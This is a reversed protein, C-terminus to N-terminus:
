PAAENWKPRESMVDIPQLTFRESAYCSYVQASSDTVKLDVAFTGQDAYNHVVNYGLAPGPDSFTDIDNPTGDGFIWEMEKIYYGAAVSTPEALPNGSVDNFPDLTVDMFQLIDTDPSYSFNAVPYSHDPTAIPSNPDSSNYPFKVGPTVASANDESDYVTVNWSYTFNGYDIFGPCFGNIDNGTLTNIFDFQKGTSCVALDSREVDVRYASQSTGAADDEVDTFVWSIREAWPDQRCPDISTANANTVSPNFTGVSVCYDAGNCFSIWGTVDGGWAWGNFNGGSLIVKYNGSNVPITLNDIGGCAVDLFENNDTDCDDALIIGDGGCSVDLRGNNDTDCNNINGKLNIWGDWDGTEWPNKLAGSCDASFVSCARAWGIFDGAGDLSAQCAGSPCGSIDGFDPDGSVGYGFTIWGINESWAYGSLIGGSDLNVGYSKVAGNTQCGPPAPTSGVPVGESNGEYIGDKDVDCNKSNFSIWGATSSWAFGMVNSNQAECGPKSPDTTINPGDTVASSLVDTEDWVTLDWYLTKGYAAAGFDADYTTSSSLVIGTNLINNTKGADDYVRIRYSKQAFQPTTNSQYTWSLDYRNDSTCNNIPGAVSLGSVTPPVCQFVTGQQGNDGGNIGTGGNVNFSGGYTNSNSCNVIRGGGGGGNGNINGGNGGNSTILGSALGTLNNSILFISGGAGGGRPGVASLGSADIIGSNTLSNTIMIKIMGGGTGSAPAGAGAFASGGDGGIGGYGGGRNNQFSGTQGGSGLDNPNTLSGYTNGGTNGSGPGEDASYGKGIADIKGGAIITLNNLNLDIYNVKANTNAIHSLTGAITLNRLNPFNTTTPSFTNVTFNGNLTMDTFGLSIANLNGTNTGIGNINIVDAGNVTFLSNNDLVGVSTLNTVGNATFTGNNTIGWFSWAGTNLATINVGPNIKFHGGNTITLYDINMNAGVPTMEGAVGNNILSLYGNPNAGDDKDKSYITGAGGYVASGSPAGGYAIASGLYSKANYRYSIRGGGGGGNNNTNGGNGGSAIMSGTAAGGFNNTDVYITGGSGGARTGTANSGSVNITGNLMLTNGITLKVLGGGTGGGAPAGAGAWASGGDGGIGGFGGGRNNQFSGSKGGSGLDNPDTISGYANGGTNGSGAGQDAAYGKGAADIKGGANVTLNDLTLDIYNVPTNNNALHGLTGNVTMNVLSAFSTTTPSFTNVILTGDITLNPVNNAILNGNNTVTATNNITLNNINRVDFYSNNNLVGTVTLSAVGLASFNGNNTISSFSWVGTNYADLNVGSNISLHAGNAVTLIDILMSNELPTIEGSFGNNDLTLYGNPNLADSKNKSYVTGAGGYTAAGTRAGGFAVATGTYTKSNFYYAIRGGGGGGNDNSAGASGGNAIMSGTAAGALNNVDVYISGGSGGARTGTSNVASANISGDLTLINSITLKVSGGGAGGTAPAGCCGGTGAGGKGGYGAGRRGAFAGSEGGSGMENPNTISGYTNGGLNGSGAGQDAAYGRGVANLVGTAAINGSTAIIEVKGYNTGDYAKVYVTRGAPISFNNINCHTGAIDIIGATANLDWADGDTPTWNAGGHDIGACPAVPVASAEDSQPGEGIINSASVKYYYTTGNVLGTDTCTLVNGLSSCGGAILLSYSGNTPSSRYVKYNTIPSGGDAPATWSLVVQANGAAAALGTVKDPSSIVCRISNADVKSWSDPDGGKPVGSYLYRLFADSANIQTSSWLHTDAGIDWFNNFSYSGSWLAEFGAQGGQDLEAEADSYGYFGIVYNRLIDFESQQPIHWGAPCLGQVPQTIFASCDGTRCSNPVRLAETWQYLGGYMNCNNNGTAIQGANGDTMYGYCYKEVIGNDTQDQYTVNDDLKRSIMKGLTLNEKTWCQNGIKVTNYINGEVDAASPFPPCANTLAALITTPASLMSAGNVTGDNPIVEVTIVNGAVYNASTLTSATAGAIDVGGKKWQYAYTIPDGDADTASVLAALNPTSAYAPSPTITVLTMVPSANSSGSCAALPNSENCDEGVFDRTGNNIGLQNWCSGGTSKCSCNSLTAGTVRLTGGAGTASTGPLDFFGSGMWDILGGNKAELVTSSCNPAYYTDLGTMDITGGNQGCVGFNECSNAHIGGKFYGSGTISVNGAKRSSSTSILSGSGEVGISGSGTLNVVGGNVGAINTNGTKILSSGSLVTDNSFTINVNGGTKAPGGAANSGETYIKLNSGGPFISAGGAGTVDLNGGNGTLTDPVSLDVILGGNPYFIDGGTMNINRANTSSTAKGDILVETNAGVFKNRFDIDTGTLDLDSSLIIRLPNPTNANVDISVGTHSGGLYCPNQTITCNGSVPCCQSATVMFSYKGVAPSLSINGAGDTAESQYEIVDGPTLPGNIALQHLGGTAWTSVPQLVGNIWYRIKHDVIIGSDDSATSYITVKETPQDIDAYNVVGGDAVQVGLSDPRWAATTLTPNITDPIGSIISFKSTGESSVYSYGSRFSLGYPMDLNASDQLFDAIVPNNANSINVLTLTDSDYASVYAMFGFVKVGKAGNLRNNDKVSGVIVPNAPDSINVITLRDGEPTVPGTGRSTVYAYPSAIDVGYATNLQEDDRVSGVYSMALPNSIDIITLRNGETPCAGNGGRATVYALSGVIKLDWAGCLENNRQISSAVSPNAPNSINVATLRNQYRATVYAYNGSVFVGTPTDLNVGDAIFGAIFPVAPNTIDVVSLTDAARSVVYAYNGYVYVSYAENLTVGDCVSGVYSPATVTTIDLITLCDVSPATVYAYNGSITSNWAGSMNPHTYSGVIGLAADAKGASLSSILFLVLFCLLSTITKRVKSINKLKM